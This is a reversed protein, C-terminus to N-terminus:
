VNKAIQVNTQSLLDHLHRKDERIFCVFLGFLTAGSLLFCFYRFFARGFSPKAKTQIDILKLEYAKYGPSQGTKAFFASLILGLLFTDCFVALQNSLFDEKGDLIFYTTIYLIPIYIMFMDVVFAKFRLSALSQAKAGKHTTKTNM